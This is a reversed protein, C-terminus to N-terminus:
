HRVNWVKHSPDHRGDRSSDAFVAVGSTHFLVAPNKKDEVVRAKQGALIATTLGIDDSDAANITIDATRAHKSILDTDSFTGQVVEVGPRRVADLHADSRVLATINLGSFHKVFDVLIAGLYLDTM